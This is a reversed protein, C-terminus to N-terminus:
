KKQEVTLEATRSDAIKNGFELYWDISKEQTKVNDLTEQLDQLARKTELERKELEKVIRDIHKTNTVLLRTTHQKTIADQIKEVEKTLRKIKSETNKKNKENQEREKDSPLLALKITERYLNSESM